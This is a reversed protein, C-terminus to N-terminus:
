APEPHELADKPLAAILAAMQEPHMAILQLLLASSPDPVRRAQEWHRMDFASIRYRHAFREQSLGLAERMAQIASPTM